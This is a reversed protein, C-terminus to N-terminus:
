IIANVSSMNIHTGPPDLARPIARMVKWGSKKMAHIAIKKRYGDFREKRNKIKKTAQIVAKEWHNKLPHMTVFASCIKVPVFSVIISGKRRNRPIVGVWSVLSAAVSPQEMLTVDIINREIQISWQYFLIASYFQYLKKVKYIRYKYDLIFV